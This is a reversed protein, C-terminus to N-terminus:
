NIFTVVVDVEAFKHRIYDERSSDIEMVDDNIIYLDTARISRCRQVFDFLWKAEEPLKNKNSFEDALEDATRVNLIDEEPVGCAKLYIGVCCMKGNDNLLKSEKSGQGRFWINRDIVLNRM